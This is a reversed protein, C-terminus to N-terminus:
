WPTILSLLNPEHTHNTIKKDVNVAEFMHRKTYKFHHSPSLQFLLLNQWRFWAMNQDDRKKKLLENGISKNWHLQEVFHCVRRECLTKVCCLCIIRGRSPCAGALCSAARRRAAPSFWANGRRAMGEEKSSREWRSRFVPVSV